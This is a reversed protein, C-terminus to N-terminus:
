RIIRLRFWRPAQVVRGKAADVTMFISVVAFRFEVAMAMFVIVVSFFLGAINVLYAVGLTGAVILLCSAQANFAQTAHFHVFRNRKRVAMYIVLPVLLPAVFLGMYAVSALGREVRVDKANGRVGEDSASETM